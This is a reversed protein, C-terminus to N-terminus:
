VWRRLKRTYGGPGSQPLSPATAGSKTPRQMDRRNLVTVPSVSLLQEASTVTPDLDFGAVTRASLCDRCRRCFRNPDEGWLQSTIFKGFPRGDPDANLMFSTISVALTSWADDFFRKSRLIGIIEKTHDRYPIMEPPIDRAVVAYIIELFVCGLSFVDTKSSRPMCNVLELAAYARTMSDPLGTTVSRTAASYDLSSGFDTYILSGRHVLINHPKIDKHRIKETHMFSLGSALCGFSKYLVMTETRTLLGERADQLFDDLAGRDAVPTLILGV